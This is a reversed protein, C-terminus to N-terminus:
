NTAAEPSSEPDADSYPQCPSSSSSAPSNNDTSASVSDFTWFDNKLRWDISLSLSKAAQTSDTSPALASSVITTAVLDPQKGKKVSSETEAQPRCYLVVETKGSLKGGQLLPRLSVMQDTFAAWAAPQMKAQRATAQWDGKLVDALFLRSQKHLLLYTADNIPPQKYYTDVNLISDGAPDPNVLASAPRSEYTPRPKPDNTLTIVFAIISGIVLLSCLGVVLGVYFKDSRPM